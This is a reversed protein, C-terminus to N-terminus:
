FLFRSVSSLIRECSPYVYVLPQLPIRLSIQGSNGVKTTRRCQAFKAGSFSQIQAIFSNFCKELELLYIIVSLQAM